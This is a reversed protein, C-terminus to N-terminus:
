GYLPGRGPQSGNRYVVLRAYRRAEALGALPVLPGGLWLWCTEGGSDPERAPMAELHRMQEMESPGARFFRRTWERATRHHDFLAIACSTPDCEFLQYVQLFDCISEYIQAKSTVSPVFLVKNDLSLTTALRTGSLKRTIFGSCLYQFTNELLILYTAGLTLWNDLTSTDLSSVLTARPHWVATQLLILSAVVVGEFFALKLLPEQAWDTLDAGAVSAWFGNGLADQLDDVALLVEPQQAEETFAFDVMVDRPMIVFVSMIIMLTVLVFTSGSLLFGTWRSRGTLAIELLSGARSVLNDLNKWELRAEIADVWAADVLAAGAKAQASRLATDLSYLRVRDWNQVSHGVARRVGAKSVWIFSLGAVLYLGGGFVLLRDWGIQGVSRWLSSVSLNAFLGAIIAMSALSAWVQFAPAMQRLRTRWWRRFQRWSGYHEPHELSDQVTRYICWQFAGRFLAGPLSEGGLFLAVGAASIGLAWYFPPRIREWLFPWLLVPELAGGRRRYREATEVALAVLLSLLIGPFPLGLFGLASLFILAIRLFLLDHHRQSLPVLGALGGDILTERLLHELVQKQGTAPRNQNM